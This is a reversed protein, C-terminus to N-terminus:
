FHPARRGEGIRCKTFFPIHGEVKIIAESITMPERHFHRAIDEVLSGTMERAWYAVIARGYAGMRNRTSSYLRDRPLAMKDAVEMYPFPDPRRKVNIPPFHYPSHM